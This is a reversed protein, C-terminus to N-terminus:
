SGGFEKARGFVTVLGAIFAILYYFIIVQITYVGGPQATFVMALFLLLPIGAYVLVTAEFSRWRSMRITGVFLIVLAVAFSSAGELWFQLLQVRALYNCAGQVLLSGPPCGLPTTVSGIFFLSGVIILAVGVILNTIRIRVLM